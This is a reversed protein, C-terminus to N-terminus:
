DSDLTSAMMQLELTTIEGYHQLKVVGDRDLGYTIPINIAGYNTSVMTDLDLLVPFGDIERENLWPTIVDATEGVNISLLNADPNDHVFRTIAPMERECPPCWTAWFNLILTQGQYDALSYIGGDLASLSFDVVASRTSNAPPAAPLTVPPPTAVITQTSASSSAFVVVAAAIGLLPFILLILAPSPGRRPRQVAPPNPTQSM